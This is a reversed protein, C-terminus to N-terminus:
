LGLLERALDHITMNETFVHKVTSMLDDYVNPRGFFRDYAEVGTLHVVGEPLTKKSQFSNITVYIGVNGSDVVRKFNNFLSKFSASNTTNSRNKFEVFTRTEPHYADMSFMGHAGQKLHRYGPANALIREHFTGFAMSVNVDVRRHREQERWQEETMGWRVMDVTKKLADVTDDNAERHTDYTKMLMALIQFLRAPHIEPLRNWEPPPPCVFPRLHKDCMYADVSKGLTKNGRLLCELCPYSQKQMSEEAKQTDM